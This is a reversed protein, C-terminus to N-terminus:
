VDITRFLIIYNYRRNILKNNELMIQKQIKKKRKNYNAIKKQAEAYMIPNIKLSEKFNKYNTTETNYLEELKNIKEFKKRLDICLTNSTNKKAYAIKHLNKLYNKNNNCSKCYSSKKQLNYIQCFHNSTKCDKSHTNCCLVCKNSNYYGFLANLNNNKESLIVSSQEKNNITNNLHIHLINIAKLLNNM